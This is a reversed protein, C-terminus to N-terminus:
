KGFNEFLILYDLINVRGDGTLDARPDPPPSQGYNEFLILYDLLNVQTNGDIDGAKKATTPTPTPSLTVTATATLVPTPTITPTPTVTVTGTPTATPNPVSFNLAKQANIRGYAWYQRSGALLDATKEIAERVQVNTWEPHQAFLLAALGAVHPTAMSTGSMNEYLAGFQGPITSLIDVGPAAVDVWDKDYNSFYAKQDSRDTAAVAIVKEYGAPYLRFRSEENGAAAVLVAGKSWAYNVADREIVSGEYSGYSMNIVKAGQDAAWYVGAVVDATYAHGDKPFVKASMLSSKFGLAPVGTLNDTVAAIIGAVHTGHYGIDPDESITVSAVVKGKLDEHEADIGDDLVAVKIQASGQSKDWAQQAGILQLGWLEGRLPDNPLYVLKVIRDVEVREVDVENSLTAIVNNLNKEEVRIVEILKNEIRKILKGGTRSRISAKKLEDSKEKYKVIIRNQPPPRSTVEYAAKSSFNTKGGILYSNVIVATTLVLLPFTLFFYKSFPKLLKSSPM